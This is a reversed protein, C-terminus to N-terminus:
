ENEAIAKEEPTMVIVPNKFEHENQNPQIAKKHVRDYYMEIAKLDGAKAKKLVAADIADEISIKHGEQEIITQAMEWLRQDIGKRKSKKGAESARSDNKTFPTLHEKSM